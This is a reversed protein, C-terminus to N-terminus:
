KRIFEGIFHIMITWFSKLSIVGVNIFREGDSLKLGSEASIGNM